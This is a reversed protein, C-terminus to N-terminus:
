SFRLIVIMSNSELVFLIFLYFSPIEKRIEDILEVHVRTCFSVGLHFIYSVACSEPTEVEHGSKLWAPQYSVGTLAPYPCPRPCPCSMRKVVAALVALLRVTNM